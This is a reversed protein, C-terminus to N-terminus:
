VGCDNPITETGAGVGATPAPIPNGCCLPVAALCDKGPVPPGVTVFCRASSFCNLTASPVEVGCVVPVLYWYYSTLYSLAPGTYM